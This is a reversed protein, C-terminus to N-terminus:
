NSPLAPLSQLYAWIAQLETDTMQGFFPWPMLESDLQRGTPTQGSRIATIFDQEHWGALEGGPTLNPGPPLGESTTLGALDPGHCERCQALNVMYQGYDVTPGEPPAFTGVAAHDIDDVHTFDTFAVFGGLLSGPFGLRRAGLENDVPPLAKLYAILANLDADSLHSYANSPMIALVRGDGGIGHRLALEWDADSYTAGIGGAGATLNPAPLDIGMEGELFPQGALDAGHCERCGGVADVLHQGRALAAADNHVEIPRTVVQPARNLRAVGAFHATAVGVLGVLLVIGLIKLVRIM